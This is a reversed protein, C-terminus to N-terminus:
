PQARHPVNELQRLLKAAEPKLRQEENLDEVLQDAFQLTEEDQQEIKDRNRDVFEPITFEYGDPGVFKHVALYAGADRGVEPDSEQLLRYDVKLATVLNMEDIMGEKLAAEHKKVEQVFKKFLNIKVQKPAMKMKEGHSTGRQMETVLQRLTEKDLLASSRGVLMGTQPDVMFQPTEVIRSNRPLQPTGIRQAMVTTSLCILGVLIAVRKM